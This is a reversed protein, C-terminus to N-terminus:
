EVLRSALYKYIYILLNINCVYTDVVSAKINCIIINYNINYVPKLM